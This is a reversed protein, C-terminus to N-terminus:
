LEGKRKKAIIVAIISRTSPLGRKDMYTTTIAKTELAIRSGKKIKPIPGKGRIPILPAARVVIIACSIMNINERIKKCNFDDLNSNLNFYVIGWM